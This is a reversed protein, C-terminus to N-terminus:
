TQQSFSEFNQHCVHFVLYQPSHSNYKSKNKYFTVCNNDRHNTKRIPMQLCIEYNM